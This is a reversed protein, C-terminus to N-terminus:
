ATSLIFTLSLPVIICGMVFQVLAIKHLAQPATPWFHTKSSGLKLGDYHSKYTGDDVHPAEVDEEEDTSSEARVQTATIPNTVAENSGTKKSHTKMDKIIRGDATFVCIYCLGPLVYGIMTSGTAGILEIVIGLDEVSLAIVFTLLLLVVTVVYYKVTYGDLNVDGYGATYEKPIVFWITKDNERVKEVRSELTLIGTDTNITPSSPLTSGKAGGANSSATSVSVPSAELKDGALTTTESLVRPTDMSPPFVIAQITNILTLVCRRGPNIQLPYSFCVVFSIFVRVASVLGNSPYNVIIDSRVKDGYTAYGCMGIVLYLSLASGVVSLIISDFRYQSPNELENVIPFINQHCTYSFIFITFVKFTIPTLNLSVHPM